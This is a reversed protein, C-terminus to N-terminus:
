HSTCPFGSVNPTHSLTQPHHTHSHPRSHTYHTHPLPEPKGSSHKLEARVSRLCVPPFRRCEVVLATAADTAIRPTSRARGSTPSASHMASTRGPAHAVAPALSPARLATTTPVGTPMVHPAHTCRSWCHHSTRRHHLVSHAVVHSSCRMGSVMARM